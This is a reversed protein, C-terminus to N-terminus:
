PFWRQAFRELGALVDATSASPSLALAPVVLGHVGLSDLAAAERAVGPTAALLVEFREDARGQRAREATLDELMRTVDAVDTYSGIWGDRRAARRLAPRTNGGIWIPVDGVGPRMRLPEFGIHQGHYEVTEGSFLLPLVDLMEDMRGGRSDYDQGAIDFEERLWGAGLGCALRGSAFAAATSISKALGFVDRLPAVFVCTTLRLRSTTQALAGLAVWCDPWPADAPWSINGDASYPYDSSIAAPFFLHDPLALGEFGLEEAAGAVEALQQVELFGANLWYRV